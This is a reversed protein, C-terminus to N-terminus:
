PKDMLVDSIRRDGLYLDEIVAQGKRVRVAIWADHSGGAAAHERYAKEADPALKENMYFRDLPLAFTTGTSDCSVVPARIYPADAPPKGSAGTLVAFGNSDTGVWACAARGAPLNTEAGPPATSREVRVAVFRGRFADFPDVPATKFKFLAGTRLTRERGAIMSAPVALQLVAVAGFLVLLHARKM